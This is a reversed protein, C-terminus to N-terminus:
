QWSAPLALPEYSSPHSAPTSVMRHVLVAAGAACNALDDHAGARPAHDVSERGGSGVRRQLGSLQTVLRPIDPLEVQRSNILSLMGLYIESKTLPSPEYKVGSRAFAAETWGGAFRDGRVAAIDFTRVIAAFDRTVDEPNFPPRVERVLDVVAIFRGDSEQEVHAIALAMSDTGGGTAPDCFALYDCEALPAALPAYEGRGSNVVARIADSSIYTSLDDRFEALWEARASTEDRELADLVIREPLTPNMVRSPARWVLVRDDDKGFYRDYVDWLPGSKAFPSSIGVLQGNLTALGPRVANLVESAPNTGDDRSWFALEDAIVLAYTKGRITGYDATRVELSVGTQLDLAFRTRRTVLQALAQWGRHVKGRLDASDRFPESAYDYLIKAQTRDSAAVGVIAREGPALQYRRSAARIALVSALRSKGSRRGCIAHFEGPPEAPPRTRGTCQEYLRQDEADLPLGDLVKAVVRWSAWTSGTLGCLAMAAQITDSAKTAM